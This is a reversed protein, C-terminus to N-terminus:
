YIFECATLRSVPAADAKGDTPDEDSATMELSDLHVTIGSPVYETESPTAFAVVATKSSKSTVPAITDVLSDMFPMIEDRIPEVLKYVVSAGRTVPHYCWVMFGLKVWFYFPIASLLRPM